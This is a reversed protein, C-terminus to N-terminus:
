TVYKTTLRYNIGVLGYRSAAHLSQISGRDSSQMRSTYAEQKDAMRLFDHWINRKNVKVRLRWRNRFRSPRQHMVSSKVVLKRGIKNQEGNGEPVQRVGPRDMGQHQRGVEEETQRTKKGRESHQGRTSVKEHHPHQQKHRVYVM